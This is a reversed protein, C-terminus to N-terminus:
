IEKIIKNMEQETIYKIAIYLMSGEFHEWVQVVCPYKSPYREPSLVVGDQIDNKIYGRTDLDMLFKSFGNQNKCLATSSDSKLLHNANACDLNLLSWYHDKSTEYINIIYPYKIYLNNM